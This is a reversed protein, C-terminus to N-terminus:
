LSVTGPMIMEWVDLETSCQVLNRIPSNIYNIKRNWRKTCIALIYIQLCWVKTIIIENVHVHLECSESFYFPFKM